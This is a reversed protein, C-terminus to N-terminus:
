SDKACRFGTNKYGLQADRADWGRRFTTTAKPASSGWYGGRIVKLEGPTQDSTHGGPYAKLDSSTWEWANGIMDLAGSPSKGATYSGVDVVHGQNGEGANAANGRWDNGWPYIRKDTGRAALEWEEETPLRKGAWNAYATADYWDVGTVPWHAGGHPYAGNVWGQPPKHGTAKIFAEYEQCTVENIDILFPKVTVKHAPREYEDGSESGMTFEGGPIPVMTSRSLPANLYSNNANPSSTVTSNTLRWVVVVTWVLGGIVAVGIMSRVLVSHSTAIKKEPSAQQEIPSQRTVTPAKATREEKIEKGQDRVELVGKKSLQWGGKVPSVIAPDIIWVDGTSPRACDYYNEYYAYFEQKTQLQTLRPILFLTRRQNPTLSDRILLFEGTSGTDAVLFGNQFDPRVLRTQKQSTLFDAVSTPFKQTRETDEKSKGPTVIELRGREKLFWGGGLKEVVAPSLIRVSGVGPEQCDYIESYLQYDRNATFQTRKPLVIPSSHSSGNGILLFEGDPTPVLRNNDIELIDFGVTLKDSSGLSTLFEAALTPFSPLPVITEECFPCLARNTQFSFSLDRCYHEILPATPFNLCGPCVLSGESTRPITFKKKKNEVDSDIATVRCHDCL